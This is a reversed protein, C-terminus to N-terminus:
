ESGGFNLVQTPADLPGAAASSTAAEDSAGLPSPQSTREVSQHIALRLLDALSAIFIRDDQSILDHECAARTERQIHDLHGLTAGLYIPLTM